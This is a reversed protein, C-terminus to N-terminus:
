GRFLLKFVKGQFIARGEPSGDMFSQDNLRRAPTRQAEHCAARSWTERWM